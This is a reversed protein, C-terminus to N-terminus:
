QDDHGGGIEKKLAALAHESTAILDELRESRRRRSYQARCKASCFRAQRRRATLDADCGVCVRSVARESQLGGDGLPHGEAPNHNENAM